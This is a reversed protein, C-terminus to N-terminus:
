SYYNHMNKNIQQNKEAKNASLQPIKKRNKHYKQKKSRCKHNENYLVINQTNSNCLCHLFELCNGPFIKHQACTAYAYYKNTKRQSQGTKPKSGSERMSASDISSEREGKIEREVERKM